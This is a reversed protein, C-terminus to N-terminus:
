EAAFIEGANFDFGEDPSVDGPPPKVTEEDFIPIATCRCNWGNPPWYRQWFPHEKPLRTGDLKMHEERTRDDGVASYEYGWLIEQVDPDQDAEWRGAGYAIQSQTRFITKLQYDKTDTLGLADFRERLVTSAESQHAGEEFLMLTTERLDKEVKRTVDNLIAFARTEYQSQLKRIDVDLSRRYSAVTKDFVTSLQLDKNKLTPTMGKLHTVVMLDRLLPVAEDRLEDGLNPIMGYSAM